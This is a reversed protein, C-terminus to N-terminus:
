QIEGADPPDKAPELWFFDELEGESDCLWDQNKSLYEKSRRGKGRADMEEGVSAPSRYKESRDYDNKRDRHRAPKTLYAAAEAVPNRPKKTAM